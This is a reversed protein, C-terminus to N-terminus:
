VCLVGRSLCVRTLMLVVQHADPGAALGPRLSGLFAPSPVSVTLSGCGQSEPEAADSPQTGEPLATPLHFTEQGPSTQSGRGAGATGLWGLVAPVSVPELLLFAVSPQKASLVVCALLCHCCWPPLGKKQARQLDEGAVSSGGDLEKEVLDGGERWVQHPAFALTVFM